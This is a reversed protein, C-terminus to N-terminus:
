TDLPEWEALKQKIRHLRMRVAGDSIGLIQAMEATDLDDLYMTLCARDTEALGALFKVLLSEEHGGSGPSTQILSSAARGRERVRRRTQGRNWSAATNLAVRYCWTALQSDGRYDPLAKWLALLMEQLLDDAETGGYARAIGWLRARNSQVLDHFTAAAPSSSNV